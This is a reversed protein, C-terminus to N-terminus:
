TLSIIVLRARTSRVGSLRRSMRCWSLSVVRLMWSYLTSGFVAFHTWPVGVLFLIAALVVAYVMATGLDPQLFVVVAPVAAVGSLFLTFRATGVNELRDVAIGALVIMLVVKGFESPQLNFPGIDIWRNSGRAAEGVVYVVALSGLLGGWLAWAWRSLRIWSGPRASDRM